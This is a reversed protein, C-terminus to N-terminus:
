SKLKWQKIETARDSAKSAVEDGEEDDGKQKDKPVAPEVKTSNKRKLIENVRRVEVMKSRLLYVIMAASFLSGAMFLVDMFIMLWGMFKFDIPTM